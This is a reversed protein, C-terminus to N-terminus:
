KRNMPSPSLDNYLFKCFNALYIGFIVDFTDGMEDEKFQDDSFYKTLFINFSSWTYNERDGTVMCSKLLFLNRLVRYETLRPRHEKLSIGLKVGIYLL